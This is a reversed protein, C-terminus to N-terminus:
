QKAKLKEIMLKASKYIDGCGLTIILDGDRANDAIYQAIEEFTDFCECGDIKAALDSSHIGYTNVERSGMIQSLVVKDAISLVEAFEDLLMATRSFTFPQFVAVVRKHNLSKATELTARLESPHHAYDDAITVGNENYLIEFRRKAGTFKDLGAAVAEPSAGVYLAAAAAAVANPVNHHGPVGLRVSCVKEGKHMLDFKGFSGNVYELNAPYYDNKESVGFTILEKEVARAAKMSDPDDGNVIAAKTASGIFKAFSSILNDMTKFYEMHDNDVNLLVAVDPSMKLFTDVYECSECVLIDSRGVVCNSHLAPLMGGIVASPDLKAELLIQTVMSTVTTKGHTGCVGIVDDFRRTLAGLLFSRELTPIGRRRAEALEPNDAMIAASYIVLETEDGINDASQGMHVPIGLAKIRDLTYSPNNDSGTLIYGRSLLIEALPSMGSGGIGILHIHRVNSILKDYDTLTKM